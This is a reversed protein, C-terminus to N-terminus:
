IEDLDFGDSMASSRRARAVLGDEHYSLYARREIEKLDIKDSM